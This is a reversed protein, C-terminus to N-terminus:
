EESRADMRRAGDGGELAGAWARLAEANLALAPPRGRPDLFVDGMLTQLAHYLATPEGDAGAMALDWLRLAQEPTM